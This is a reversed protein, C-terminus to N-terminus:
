VSIGRRVYKALMKARSPHYNHSFENSILMMEEMKLENKAILKIFNPTPIPKGLGSKFVIGNKSAHELLLLLGANSTLNKASFEIKNIM